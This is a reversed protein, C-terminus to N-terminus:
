AGRRIPRVIRETFPEAFGEALAKRFPEASGETFGEPWREAIGRRVEDRILERLRDSHVRDYAKNMARIVNPQKLIGDRRIHAKVLVEDTDNDVAVFGADALAKIAQTITRANQDAALPAFRKPLLPVVGVYSLDRSLLLAWYAWQQQATLKCFEADDQVDLWMKVHDRAM